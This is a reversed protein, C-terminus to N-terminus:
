KEVGLLKLVHYIATGYGIVYGTDTNSCDLRKIQEIVSTPVAQAPEQKAFYAGIDQVVVLLKNLKDKAQEYTDSANAVGVDHMVLAEDIARLWGSYDPKVESLRDIEALADQIAWYAHRDFADILSMREAALQLAEKVANM